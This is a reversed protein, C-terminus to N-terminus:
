FFKPAYLPQNLPHKIIHRLSGTKTVVVTIKKLRQRSVMQYSGSQLLYSDSFHNIYM